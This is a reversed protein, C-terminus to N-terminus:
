GSELNYEITEIRAINIELFWFKALQFNKYRRRLDQRSGHRKSCVRRMQCPKQLPNTLKALSSFPPLNLSIQYIKADFDYNECRNQTSTM